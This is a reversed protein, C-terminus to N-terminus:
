APHIAECHRWHANTTTWPRVSPHRDGRDARSRVSARGLARDFCHTQAFSGKVTLERRFMEYPHVPLLGDEDAMGYILVTGGDRVLPVCMEGVAAAGTAEVVVDYGDPAGTACLPM